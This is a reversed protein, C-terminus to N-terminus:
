VYQLPHQQLMLPPQLQLFGLWTGCPAMCYVLAVCNSHWALLPHQTITPSIVIGENSRMVIAVFSKLSAPVAKKKLRDQLFHQHPRPTIIRTFYLEVNEVKTGFIKKM